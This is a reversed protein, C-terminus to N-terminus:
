HVNSRALTGPSLPAALDVAAASQSKRLAARLHRECHPGHFVQYGIVTSTHTWTVLGQTTMTECHRCKQETM